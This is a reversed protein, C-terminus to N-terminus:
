EQIATLNDKDCRDGVGLYWGQFRLEPFDLHDRLSKLAKYIRPNEVCEAICTLRHEKCFVLDKKIIGAYYSDGVHKVIEGDIKVGAPRYLALAHNNSHNRGFDDLVLDFGMSTIYGLWSRRDPSPEIEESVEVAILSPDNGALLYEGLRSLYDPHGISARSLNVHHPIKKSAQSIACELADLDIQRMRDDDPKAWSLVIPAPLIVGRDGLGRVLVEHAIATDNYVIPQCIFTYRM